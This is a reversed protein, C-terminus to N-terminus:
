YRKFKNSKFYNLKNIGYQKKLIGNIYELMVIAANDYIFCISILVKFYEDPYYSMSLVRSILPWDYIASKDINNIIKEEWKIPFEYIIEKGWRISFWDFIIISEGYVNIVNYVSDKAIILDKHLTTLAKYKPEILYKGKKNIMGVLKGESVRAYNNYFTSASDFIPKIIFNNSDLINVFGFKNLTIDKLPVISTDVQGNLQNCFLLSVIILYIIKFRKM